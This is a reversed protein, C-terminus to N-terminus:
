RLGKWLKVKPIKLFHTDYTVIVLNNEIAQAAIWIDNTPIPTGREYLDCSIKGYIKATDKSIKIYEVKPDTLFDALAKENYKSKIGRYFGVYLEGIVIASMSVIDSNEIEKKVRKDGAMYFSYANVDLLINKM